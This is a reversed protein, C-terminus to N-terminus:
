DIVVVRWVHIQPTGRVGREIARVELTHVGQEGFEASEYTKPSECAVFERGDIRCEFGDAESVASFSFTVQEGQNSSQPADDITVDPPFVISWPYTVVTRSGGARVELIHEGEKLQEHQSPCSAFGGQGDLRCEYSAAGSFAFRATSNSTIGPGAEIRVVPESPPSPGRVLWTHIAPRGPVGREIARVEFAHAGDALRSAPYSQSAETDCPAFLEGDLRCQFREAGESIAAFAFTVESGPRTVEAADQIAVEPPVVIAWPYGTVTEGGVPRVELLHDGENLDQYASPCIRFDGQDLRCEYQNAGSFTFRAFSSATIGPGSEIRAPQQPRPPLPPDPDPRDAIFGAILGTALVATTVGLWRGNDALWRRPDKLRPARLGSEDQANRLTQAEEEGMTPTVAAYFAVKAEDRADATIDFIPPEIWAEPSLFPDLRRQEELEEEFRELAGRRPRVAFVDGIRLPRDRNARPRRHRALYEELSQRNAGLTFPREPFRLRGKGDIVPWESLVLSVSREFIDDVVLYLYGRRRRSRRLAEPQWLEAREDEIVYANSM